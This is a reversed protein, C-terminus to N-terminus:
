RENDMSMMQLVLWGSKCSGLEWRMLLPKEMLSWSSTAQRQSLLSVSVLRFFSLFFQPNISNIVGGGVWQLYYNHSWGGMASPLFCKWLDCCVAWQWVEGQFTVRKILSHLNPKNEYSFRSKHLTTCKGFIHRMETIFESSIMNQKTKFKCSIMNQKTKGCVPHLGGRSDSICPGM